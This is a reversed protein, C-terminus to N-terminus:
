AEASEQPGFWGAALVAIIDEKFAANLEVVSNCDLNLNKASRVIEKTMKANIWEQLQLKLHWLRETDVRLDQSEKYNKYMSLDWANEEWKVKKRFRNEQAEIETLHNELIAQLEVLQDFSLAKLEQKFYPHTSEKDWDYFHLDGSLLANLYLTALDGDELLADVTKM